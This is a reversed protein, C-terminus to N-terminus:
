NRTIKKRDDLLKFSGSAPKPPATTLMTPEIIFFVYTNSLIIEISITALPSIENQQMRFKGKPGITCRQVIDQFQDCVSLFTSRREPDDDQEEM